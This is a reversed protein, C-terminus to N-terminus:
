EKKKEITEDNPKTCFSAIRDSAYVGVIFVTVCIISEVIVGFFFILSTRFILQCVILWMSVLIISIYKDGIESEHDSTLVTLVNPFNQMHIIFFPSTLIGGAFMILILIILVIVIEFLTMPYEWNAMREHIMVMFMLMLLWHSVGGQCIRKKLDKIDKVESLMKIDKYKICFCLSVCLIDKHRQAKHELLACLM